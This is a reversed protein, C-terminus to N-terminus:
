KSYECQEEIERIDELRTVRLSNAKLDLLEAEYYFGKENRRLTCGKFKYKTKDSRNRPDTHEVIQGLNKRVKELEM